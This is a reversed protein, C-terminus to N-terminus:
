MVSFAFCLFSHTMAISLFQLTQCLGEVNFYQKIKVQVYINMASFRIM